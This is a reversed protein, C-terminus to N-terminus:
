GRTEKSGPKTRSAKDTVVILCGAGDHAVGVIRESREIDAVAKELEDPATSLRHIPM